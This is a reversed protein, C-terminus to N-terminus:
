REVERGSDQVLGFAFRATRGTEQHGQESEFPGFDVAAHDALEGGAAQGVGHAEPGTVAEDGAIAFLNAARAGELGRDLLAEGARIGAVEDQQNVPRTRFTGADM